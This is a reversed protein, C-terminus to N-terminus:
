NLSFVIIVNSLKTYVALASVGGIRPTLKDAASLETANIVV